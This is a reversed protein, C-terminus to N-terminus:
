QIYWYPTYLININHMMIHLIMNDRFIIIDIFRFTDHVIHSEYTFKNYLVCALRFDNVLLSFVEYM